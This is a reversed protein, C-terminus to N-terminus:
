AIGQEPAKETAFRRREGALRRLPQVIGYRNDSALPDIESRTHEVQRRRQHDGCPGVAAAILYAHHTQGGVPFPTDHDEPFARRGVGHRHVM